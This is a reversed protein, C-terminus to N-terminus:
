KLHDLHKEVLKSWCFRGGHELVGLSSKSENMGYRYSQSEETSFM